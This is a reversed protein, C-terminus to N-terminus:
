LILENVDELRNTLYYAKSEDKVSFGALWPSIAKALKRVM